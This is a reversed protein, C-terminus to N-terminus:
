QIRIFKFQKAHTQEHKNLASQQTFTKQCLKCNYPREGTHTRMHADLTTKRAFAKQCITCCFKKPQHIRLHSSLESSTAFPQGCFNCQIPKEFTHCKRIHRQLDTYVAFRDYCNEFSCQLRKVDLNFLFILM